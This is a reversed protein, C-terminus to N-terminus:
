SKVHLIPIPKKNFGDPGRYLAELCRAIAAEAQNIRRVLKKADLELMAALDTAV